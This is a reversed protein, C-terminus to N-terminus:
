EQGDQKGGADTADPKGQGGADDGKGDKANLASLLQRYHNRALDNETTSILYEIDDWTLSEELKSRLSLYAARDFGPKDKCASWYFNLAIRNRAGDPAEGYIKSWKPGKIFLRISSIVDEENIGGAQQGNEGSGGPTQDTQSAGETGGAAEDMAVGGKATKLAERVIEKPDM